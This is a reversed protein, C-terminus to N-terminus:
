ASHALCTIGVMFARPVQSPSLAETQAIAWEPRNRTRNSPTDTPRQKVCEPPPEMTLMAEMLENM